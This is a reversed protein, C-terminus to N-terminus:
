VTLKINPHVNGWESEPIEKMLQDMYEDIQSVRSNWQSGISRNNRSDGLRSIDDARGGAVQDVTHLADQGKM